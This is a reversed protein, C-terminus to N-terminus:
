NRKVRIQRRYRIDVVGTCLDNRAPVCAQLIFGFPTLQLTGAYLRSVQFAAYM